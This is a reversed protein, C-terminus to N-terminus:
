RMFHNWTSFIAPILASVALVYVSWKMYKASEKTYSATEIAAHAALQQAEAAQKEADFAEEQAVTNRRLLEAKAFPALSNQNGISDVLQGLPWSEMKERESPM